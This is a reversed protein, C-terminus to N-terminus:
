ERAKRFVGGDDGCWMWVGGRDAIIFWVGDIFWDGFGEEARGEGARWEECGRDTRCCAECVWGSTGYYLYIWSDKTRRDYDGFRIWGEAGRLGLDFSNLLEDFNWFRGIGSGKRERREKAAM